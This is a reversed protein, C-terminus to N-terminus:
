VAVRKKERDFLHLHQREVWFHIIEGAARRPNETAIAFFRSGDTDLEVIWSGGTPVIDVITGRGAALRAAEGDTLAGIRVAEPRIGASAIPAGALGFHTLLSQVWVLLPSQPTADMEVINIPLSGVFEAVFRNAPREYIDDPTGVQQLEGESMVAITTALTMAEWQDHTVFVITSGAEAHIRKLEARMELRLKADLNSLPEDLLIISPNLALMRALAVRQQQGGSLQAPYRSAYKAIGLKTMVRDVTADCEAAAVKRLKLGFEVNQRITMHPWLAYNQFVLGMNRKEPVTFIGEEVSVIPKGDVLIRGDTPHELGAIMRLTTTKGCGSPGLLCLFESKGIEMSLNGIAAPMGRGYSKGINELTISSM